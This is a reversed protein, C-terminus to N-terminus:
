LMMFSSCFHLAESMLGANFVAVVLVVGVQAVSALDVVVRADGARLYDPHHYTKSLALDKIDVDLLVGLEQSKFYETMDFDKPILDFDKLMKSCHSMVDWDSASGMVIAVQISM